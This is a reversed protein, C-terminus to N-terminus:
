PSRFLDGSITCRLNFVRSNSNVRAILRPRGESIFRTRATGILTTFSSTVRTPVPAVFLFASGAARDFELEFSEATSPDAVDARCSLDTVELREGAKVRYVPMECGSFSDSCNATVAKQFPIREEAALSAPALAALALLGAAVRRAPLSRTSM